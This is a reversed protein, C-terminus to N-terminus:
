SIMNLYCEFCYNKSQNNDWHQGVSVSMSDDSYTEFCIAFKVKFIPDNFSPLYKNKDLLMNILNKDLEFKFSFQDTHLHDFNMSKLYDCNSDNYTKWDDLTYRLSVKKYMGLNIVRVMGDLINHNMHVYELSVKKEKLDNYFNANFGPQNFCCKWKSRINEFEFTDLELSDQSSDDSSSYSDDILRSEDESPYLVIETMEALDLGISDAFRVRKKKKLPSEKVNDQLQFSQTLNSLNLLLEDNFYDNFNIAPKTFDTRYSTRVKSRKKTTSEFIKMSIEELKLEFDQTLIHDPM